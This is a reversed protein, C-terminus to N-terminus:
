HKAIGLKFHPIGLVGSLYILQDPRLDGTVNMIFVDKGGTVSLLIVGTPTSGSRGSWLEMESDGSTNAAYRVWQPAKLLDRIPQIKSRYAALPPGVTGDVHFGRIQISKLGGILKQTESDFPSDQPRAANALLVSDVDIVLTERAGSMMKDIAQQVQAHSNPPPSTIRGEQFLRGLMPIQALDVYVIDEFPVPREKETQAALPLAVILIWVITMLRM